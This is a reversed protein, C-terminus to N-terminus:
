KFTWCLFWYSFHWIQSILETRQTTTFLIWIYIFKHPGDPRSLQCDDPYSIRWICTHSGLIGHAASMQIPISSHAGHLSHLCLSNLFSSTPLSWEFIDAWSPLHVKSSTQQYQPCVNLIQKPPVLACEWILLILPQNAKSRVFAKLVTPIEAKCFPGVGLSAQKAVFRISSPIPSVSMSKSESFVQKSVGISFIRWNM